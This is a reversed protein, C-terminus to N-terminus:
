AVTTYYINGSAGFLVAAEGLTAGAKDLLIGSTPYNPLNANIATISASGSPFVTGDYNIYYDNGDDGILLGTSGITATSSLVLLGTSLYIGSAVLVSYYNITVEPPTTAGISTIYANGSTGLLVGANEGEPILLIGNDPYGGGTTVAYGILNNNFPTISYANVIKWSTSIATITVTYYNSLSLSSLGDILTGDISNVITGTINTCLIVYTKGATVSTFTPLSVVVNPVTVIGTLDTTLLTYNASITVQPTLVWTGSSSHINSLATDLIVNNTGTGTPDTVLISGGDIELATSAVGNVTTTLNNGTYATTNINIINVASSATGGNVAVTMSNTTSNLTGTLGTIGAGGGDFNTATLTAFTPSSTTDIAQPTSLTITGTTNTVIIESTTGAITIVGTESNLSTVGTALPANNALVWIKGTGDAWLIVFQYQTTLVYSNTSNEITDGSFPNITVTNSSSDTKIFLISSNTSNLGSSQALTLSINALTANSEFSTGWSTSNLSASASNLTFQWGYLNTLEWFSSTASPTNGTNSSTTSTYWLGNFSVANNANYTVGSNYVSSSLAQLTSWSSYTGNTTLVSGSNSAQTPLLANIASSATTQGTGGQTIPLTGSINSFSPQTYIINGGSVGTAFENTPASTTTLSFANGTLTIGDIGIYTGSIEGFKLNTTGLTGGYIANSLWNTGSNVTGNQVVAILNIYSSWTTYGTTLTMAIGTGNWTYIGDNPNGLGTDPTQNKVLITAGNTLTVGDITSPASSISINATTAATVQIYVTGGSGGGGSGGMGSPYAIIGAYVSTTM